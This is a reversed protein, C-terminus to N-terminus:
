TVATWVAATTRSRVVSNKAGTKLAAEPKSLPGGAGVGVLAADKEMRRM